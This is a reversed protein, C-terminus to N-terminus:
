SCHLGPECFSVSLAYLLTGVYLLANRRTFVHSDQYLCANTNTSCRLGCIVDHTFRNQVAAEGPLSFDVDVHQCSNSCREQALGAGRITGSDYSNRNSRRCVQLMSITCSSSCTLHERRFITRGSAKWLLVFALDCYTRHSCQAPSESTSFEFKGLTQHGTLLGTACHAIPVIHLGESTSFVCKRLTQHETFLGTASHAIPVTHLGESTLFVCRGLTQHETFLGTASHAIPVTHLGESTL